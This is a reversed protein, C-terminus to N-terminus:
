MFVWSVIHAPNNGLMILKGQGVLLIISACQSSLLRSFIVFYEKPAHLGSNGARLSASKPAQPNILTEGLAQCWSRAELYQTEKLVHTPLDTNILM